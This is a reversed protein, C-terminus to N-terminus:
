EQERFMLRTQFFEWNEASCVWLEWTVKCPRWWLDISFDTNIWVKLEESGWEDRGGAMWTRNRFGARKIQWINHNAPPLFLNTQNIPNSTNSKLTPCEYLVCSICACKCMLLSQIDRYKGNWLANDEHGGWRHFCVVSKPNMSLDTKLQYISSTKEYLLQNQSSTSTQVPARPLPGAKYECVPFVKVLLFIHKFQPLPVSSSMGTSRRSWEHM